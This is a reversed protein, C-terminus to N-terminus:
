AVWNYRSHMVHSGGVKSGPSIKFNVWLGVFTEKILGKAYKYKDICM